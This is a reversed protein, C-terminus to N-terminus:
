LSEWLEAVQADTLGHRQQVFRRGLDDLDASEAKFTPLLAPSGDEMFGETLVEEAILFKMYALAFEPCGGYQRAWATALRRLEPDFYNM